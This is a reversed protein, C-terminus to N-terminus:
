ISSKSNDRYEGPSMEFKESFLAYFHPISAYGCELAIESVTLDSSTLLNAAYQMRLDSIYGVPSIDYHKKMMRTCHERSRGCIEFFRESGATLNKPLRMKECAYELWFPTGTNKECRKTFYESVLETLLLRSRTKFTQKDKHMLLFLESLRSETRERETIDLHVEPPLPRAMLESEAKEMGYYAFMGHVVEKELLLTYYTFSDGTFDSYTHIDTNRIFYLCGATMPLIKGNIYHNANGDAVYVIEHFEHDHMPYEHSPKNYRMDAGAGTFIHDASTLHIHSM